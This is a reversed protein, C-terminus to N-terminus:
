LENGMCYMGWGDSGGVEYCAVVFFHWALNDILNSYTWDSM